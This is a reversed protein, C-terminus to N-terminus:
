TRVLYERNVLRRWLSHGHVIGRRFVLGLSRRQNVTGAEDDNILRGTHGAVIDNTTQAADHAGLFNPVRAREIGHGRPDQDESSYM